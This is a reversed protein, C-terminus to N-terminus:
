IHIQGVARESYPPKLCILDAQVCPINHQQFHDNPFYTVIRSAQFRGKYEPKIYKAYYEQTYYWFSNENFFSIHTPDQFAGRGDTSPVDIFFWGGPALIRFAENMCHIPNKLHELVHSARIVGISNDAFPWRDNLDAVVDADMRDVSIFGSPCDFRGGMDIMGLKNERSWQCALDRSYKLYNRETQVQIAHNHTVVTNEHVRYLYLCEDIHRIGVSGYKLYTRCCLDHDDGVPLTQDHGNLELYASKRWARVHNPAWFIQRMMHASPPWAITEQLKKEEYFFPRSKWGYEEGYTNSEWTKDHFEASNSYVMQVKEDSFANRVEELCTNILIDDYDLELLVIGSCKMCAEKKLAGINIVTETKFIKIRGDTMFSLDSDLGEGNLLIVWQWNSYTQAILSDHAQRIYGTDKKHFPTFVSIM